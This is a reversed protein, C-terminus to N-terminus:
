ALPRLAIESCETGIRNSSMKKKKNGNAYKKMKAGQCLLRRHLDKRRVRM